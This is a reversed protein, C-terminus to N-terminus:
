QGETTAAMRAISFRQGSYPFRLQHHPSSPGSDEVKLTVDFEGPKNHRGSLLGEPTLNIGEPLDGYAVSWVYPPSGGSARLLVHFEVGSEIAPLPTDQVVLPPIQAVLAGSFCILITILRAVQTLNM